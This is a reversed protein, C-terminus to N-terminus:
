SARWASFWGRLRKVTWHTPWAIECVTIQDKALLWGHDHLLFDFRGWRIFGDEDFHPFMGIEM